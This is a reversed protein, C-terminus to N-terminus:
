RLRFDFGADAPYWRLGDRIDLKGSPQIAVVPSDPDIVGSVAAEYLERYRASEGAVSKLSAADRFL